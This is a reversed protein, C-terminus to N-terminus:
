CRPPHEGFSKRFQEAALTFGEVSWPARVFFPGAENDQHQDAHLNNGGNAHLSDAIEAVM